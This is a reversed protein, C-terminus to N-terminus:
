PLSPIDIISEDGTLVNFVRISIGNLGPTIEVLFDGLDFSGEQTFDVGGFQDGVIQRSLDSLIRRQLNAQFDALPDRVTAEREEVYENQAQASSFMWSYNLPSGGFAPNRPQYVMQQASASPAALVGFLALLPLFSRGYRTMPWLIQM